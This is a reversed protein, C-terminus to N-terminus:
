GESTEQEDAISFYRGVDRCEQATFLLNPRALEAPSDPPNELRALMGSFEGPHFRRGGLGGIFSL